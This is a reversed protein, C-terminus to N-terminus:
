LNRRKPTGRDKPDLARKLQKGLWGSNGENKLENAAEGRSLWDARSALERFM